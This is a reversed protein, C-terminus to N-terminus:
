VSDVENEASEKKQYFWIFQEGKFISLSHFYDEGPEQTTEYYSQYYPLLTHLRNTDKMMWRRYFSAPIPFANQYCICGKTISFYFEFPQDFDLGSIDEKFFLTGKNKFRILSLKLQLISNYHKTELMQLLTLPKM